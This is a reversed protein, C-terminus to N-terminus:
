RKRTKISQEAEGLQLLLRSVRRNLAEIKRNLLTNTESMNGYWDIRANWKRPLGGLYADWGAANPPGWNSINGIQAAREWVVIAHPDIGWGHSLEQTLGCFDSPLCGGPIPFVGGVKVQCSLPPEAKSFPFASSQQSACIANQRLTAAIARNAADNAPSKKELQTNPSKPSPPRSKECATPESPREGKKPTPKPPIGFRKGEAVRRRIRSRTIANVVPAQHPQVQGHEKGTEATAKSRILGKPRRRRSRFM